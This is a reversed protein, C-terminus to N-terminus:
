WGPITRKQSLLWFRLALLLEFRRAPDALDVGVLAEIQRMRYRVTQPHVTLQEAVDVLSSGASLWTLLTESLRLRREPPLDSFVALAKDTLIRMCDEDGALLLTPLHDDCRVAGAEPSLMGERVMVLARRALRLSVPADGLCVSPGIAYTAGALSQGLMTERGPLEPAPLLLFPDPRDFDTLVDPTLGIPARGRRDAGDGVAVCAVREPVRWRAQRALDAVSDTAPAVEQVLLQLLRRRHQGLLNAPEGRLREYIDASTASMQELRDLLIKVLLYMQDPPVGAERGAAALRNWVIRAGAQYVALVGDIEVGELFARTVFAEHQRRASGAVAPDSAAAGEILVEFFEIFGLRCREGAEGEFLFRLEPVQQRVGEVVETALSDLEPGVIDAM